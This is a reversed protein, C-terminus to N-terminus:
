HLGEVAIKWGASGDGAGAVKTAARRARQSVRRERAEKMAVM